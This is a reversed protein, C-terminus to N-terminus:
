RVHAAVAAAPAGAPREQAPVAACVAGGRGAQGRGLSQHRQLLPTLKTFSAFHVWVCRSKLKAQLHELLAQKCASNDFVTADGSGDDVASEDMAVAKTEGGKKTEAGSQQRDAGAVSAAAATTAAGLKGDKSEAPLPPLLLCLLHFWTM